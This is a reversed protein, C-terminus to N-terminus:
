KIQANDKKILQKCYTEFNLEKSLLGNNKKIIYEGYIKKREFDSFHSSSKQHRKM